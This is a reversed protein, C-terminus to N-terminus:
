DTVRVRLRAMDWRQRSVAALRGQLEQQLTTGSTQLEVPTTTAQGGSFDKFTDRTALFVVESTGTPASARITLGARPVDVPVNAKLRINEALLVVSGSTNVIYVHGYGSQNARVQFRIPTGITLRTPGVATLSAQMRSGHAPRSPKGTAEVSLDKEQALAAVSGCAVALGAALGSFGKLFLRRDMSM